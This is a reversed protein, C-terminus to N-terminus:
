AVTALKKSVSLWRVLRNILCNATSFVVVFCGIVAVFLMVRDGAAPMREVHRVM